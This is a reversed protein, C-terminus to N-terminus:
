KASRVRARRPSLRRAGPASERLFFAICQRALADVDLKGRSDYWRAIWNLAGFLLL